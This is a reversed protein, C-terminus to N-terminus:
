TLNYFVGIDDHIKNLTDVLIDRNERLRAVERLLEKAELRINECIRRIEEDSKEIVRELLGDLIESTPNRLDRQESSLLDNEQKLKKSQNIIKNFEVCKAKYKEQLENLNEKLQKISLDSKIKELRLVELEKNANEYLRQSIVWSRKEKRFEANELNLDNICQNMNEFSKPDRQKTCKVQIQIRRNIDESDKNYVKILEYYPSNYELINVKSKLNENDINLLSLEKDKNLQIQKLEDIENKLNKNEGDLQQLVELMENLKKKLLIEENNTFEKRPQIEVFNRQLTTIEPYERFMQKRTASLSEKFPSKTKIPSNTDLKGILEKIVGRMEKMKEPKCKGEANLYYNTIDNMSNLKDDPSKKRTINKKNSLPSNTKGQISKM